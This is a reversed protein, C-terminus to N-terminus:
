ISRKKGGEYAISAIAIPTLSAIAAMAWRATQDIDIGAYKQLVANAIAILLVAGIGLLTLVFKRSHLMGLPQDPKTYEDSM